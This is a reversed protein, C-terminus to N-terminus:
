RYAQRVNEVFHPYAAAAAPGVVPRAAEHVTGYEAFRTYFAGARLTGQYPNEPHPVWLFSHQERGTKRRGAVAARAITATERGAERVARKTVRAAQKEIEPLRTTYPM